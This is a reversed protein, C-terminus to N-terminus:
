TTVKGWLFPVRNKNTPMLNIKQVLLIWDVSLSETHIFVCRLFFFKNDISILKHQFHWVDGLKTKQKNKETRYWTFYNLDILTIIILSQHKHYIHALGGVTYKQTMIKKTSLSFFLYFLFCFIRDRSPLLFNSLFIFVEKQLSKMWRRCIGRFCTQAGTNLIYNINDTLDNM